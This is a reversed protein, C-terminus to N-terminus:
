RELHGGLTSVVTALADGYRPLIPHSPDGGVPVAYKRAAYMLRTTNGFGCLRATARADPSPAAEMAACAWLVRAAALFSRSSALGADHLRRSLTRTSINLYAAFTAVHGGEVVVRAAVALVDRLLCPEVGGLSARTLEARQTARRWSECLLATLEPASPAVVVRAGARAAALLAGARPPPACCIAILVVDSHEQACQLILPATPLGHEDLIPFVVVDHERTRLRALVAVRSREHVVHLMAGTAHRLVSAEPMEELLASLIHPEKDRPLFSVTMGPALQQLIPWM